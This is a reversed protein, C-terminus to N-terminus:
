LKIELEEDTLAFYLNQLQHLTTIPRQHSEHRFVPPHNLSEEIIEGNKEWYFCMDDEDPFFGCRKLLEQTLPIPELDDFKLPILSVTNGRSLTASVMTLGITMVKTHSTIEAGWQVYNGIRLQKPDIM